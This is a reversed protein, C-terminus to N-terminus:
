RFSKGSVVCLGSSPLGYSALWAQTTSGKWGPPNAGSYGNLTPIGVELSALMADLQPVYDPTEDSTLFFSACGKRVLAAVRAARERAWLKDYSSTAQVQELVLLLSLAIAVVVKRRRELFFAVGISAPILFLLSIRSLARIAKAGPVVFYLARWATVGPYLESTLVVLGVAALALVRGWSNRRIEKLGLGAMALTAWGIGMRQEFSLMRFGKIRDQWGYLWTGSGLYLWSQIRPPLVDEYRRYGIQGAAELYHTALPLLVILSASAAVAWARSQSTLLELVSRRAPIFFLATVLALALGFGLMWGLYVSAFIQLCYASAFGAIWLRARPDRPAQLLRTLAHLALISYFQPLLQPHSAQAGRPGAFAFLFAGATAALRGLGLGRRLWYRAAAFNLTSMLIM